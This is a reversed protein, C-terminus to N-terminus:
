DALLKEIDTRSGAILLTENTKFPRTPDSFLRFETDNKPRFAIVNLGYKKRVDLAVITKGVWKEPTIAEAVSFNDSPCFYDSVGNMSLTYALKKGCDKEPLIVRDAGLKELAKKQQDDTARAIIHSVGMDKLLLTTLVTTQFDNEICLCCCDYSKVGAARLASENSADCCVANTVFAGIADVKEQCEDVALVQRGSGALTLALTSGFSGLGIICFSKM